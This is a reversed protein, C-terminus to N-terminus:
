CRRRRKLTRRAVSRSVDAKRKGGISGIDVRVWDSEKWNRRIYDGDVASEAVVIKVTTNIMRPILELL